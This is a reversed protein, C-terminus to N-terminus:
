VKEIPPPLGSTKPSAPNSKRQHCYINLLIHPGGDCTGANQPVGQKHGAQDDWTREYEWM